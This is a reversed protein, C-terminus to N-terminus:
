GNKQAALQEPTRFYGVQDEEWIRGMWQGDATYVEYRMEGTEELYIQELGEGDYYYLADFGDVRNSERNWAKYIPDTPLPTIAPLHVEQERSTM